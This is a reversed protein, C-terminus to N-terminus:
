PADSTPASLFSSAKQIFTALDAADQASLSIEENRSLTQMFRNVDCLRSDPTRTLDRYPEPRGSSHMWSMSDLALRVAFPKQDLVSSSLDRAVEDGLVHAILLLMAHPSVASEFEGTGRVRELWDRVLLEGSANEFIEAEERENNYLLARLFFTAADTTLSKSELIRECEEVRLQPEVSRFLVRLAKDLRQKRSFDLEFGDTIVEYSSLLGLAASTNTTPPTVTGSNIAEILSMAASPGGGPPRRAALKQVLETVDLGQEISEQFNRIERLSIVNKEHMWRFYLDFGEDDRIRRGQLVGIGRPLTSVSGFVPFLHRLIEITDNERRALRKMVDSVKEGSKGQLMHRKNNRIYEYIAPEFLRIAEIGVVDPFYADEWVPPWSVRIANILLNVSRPTRMYGSFIHHAIWDMDSREFVVDKGAADLLAGSFLQDLGSRSPNPLDLHVQVIKELFSAGGTTAKIHTADKVVAMDVPLLYVVNPLDAVSKLMSLILRMEDPHLRDIDDIVVVIKRSQGLLLNRLEERREALGVTEDKKPATFLTKLGKAILALGAQGTGTAALSAADLIGSVNQVMADKIARAAGAAKHGIGKELAPALTAFFQSALNHQGSFLWPEFHVVMSPKRNPDIQQEVDSLMELALNIASTKGSGWVGNVAIVLGQGM